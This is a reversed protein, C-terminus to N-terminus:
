IPVLMEKLPKTFEDGSDDIYRVSHIEPNPFKATLTLLMMVISSLSPTETNSLKVHKINGIFDTLDHITDNDSDVIEVSLYPFSYNKNNALSLYPYFLMKDANYYLASRTTNMNSKYLLPQTYGKMFVYVTPTVIYEYADNVKNYVRTLCKTTSLYLTIVPIIFPYLVSPIYM